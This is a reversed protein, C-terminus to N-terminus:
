KSAGALLLASMDSYLIDKDDAGMIISIYPSGATNQSYLIVCSGAEDTTGTKGGFVTIGEPNPVNGMSYYNTALWAEERSVGDAGTIVPTFQKLSIIDLFRQDKLCANFMLYLDYATTYHETEHLGHPNTFHTQTAGLAAAEKNMLDAFAEVSGSIHEAIAVGNDNGSHLVLGVLLDYMSLQDGAQLGCLQADPEFQTARESVTVIDELNGYKLVIYATMVKTTSAPYLRDFLKDSYLVQKNNIDFLGAGHLREDTVYGELEINGSTVCLDAAFLEGLFMSKNYNTKEYETVYNTKESCGALSFGALLVSFLVFVYKNICKVGTWIGETWLM